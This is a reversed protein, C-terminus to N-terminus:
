PQHGGFFLGRLWRLFKQLGFSRRSEDQAFGFEAGLNSEYKTGAEAREGVFEGVGAPNGVRLNRVEGACRRNTVCALEDESGYVADGESAHLAANM